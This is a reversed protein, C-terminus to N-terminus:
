DWAWSRWEEATREKNRRIEEQWKDQRAKAENRARVYDEPKRRTREKAEEARKRKIEAAYRAATERQKAAAAERQKQRQHEQAMHSRAAAYGRSYGQSYEATVFGQELPRRDSPRRKLAKELDVGAERLGKALMLAANAAEHENSSGSLRLLKQLKSPKM